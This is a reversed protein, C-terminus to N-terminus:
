KNKFPCNQVFQTQSLLTISIDRTYGKELHLEEFCFSLWVHWGKFYPKLWSWLPTESNEQFYIWDGSYLSWNAQLFIADQVKLERGWKMRGWVMWSNQYGSNAIRGVSATVQGFITSTIRWLKWLAYCGLLFLKVFFKNTFSVSVSECFIGDCVPIQHYFGSCIFDAWLVVCSGAM